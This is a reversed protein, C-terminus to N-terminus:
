GESQRTSYTRHFMLFIRSAFSNQFLGNWYTTHLMAKSLPVIIKCRRRKLMAIINHKKLSGVMDSTASSKPLSGVMQIGNPLSNDM